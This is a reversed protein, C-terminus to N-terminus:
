EAPPAEPKKNKRVKWRNHIWWYQHPTRRIMEEYVTNYWQTMDKVNMQAAEPTDPELIREVTITFRFPKEGERIPSSLCMPAHFVRSLVPIAKFASVERGFSKVWVGKQGAHQDAVIAATKGYSLAEELMQAAHDKPIIYQGTSRRFEGLYKELYPNDLTRAVTYAPIGILGLIYGAFEFNGLHAVVLLVPRGDYMAKLAPQENQLTVYKKWNTLHIKREAHAAEILMLMLHHWMRMQLADRQPRSLEPFAHQLNEDVLRHRIRLIKCGFFALGRGFTEAAELSLAQIVSVMLRVFLYVCYDRFNRFKSPNKTMRRQAGPSGSTYITIKALFGTKM